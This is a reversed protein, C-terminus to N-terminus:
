FNNYCITKIIRQQNLYNLHEYKWLKKSIYKPQRTLKFDRNERKTNCNLLYELKKMKMNQIRKVKKKM